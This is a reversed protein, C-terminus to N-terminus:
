YLSGGAKRSKFLAKSNSENVLDVEIGNEIRWASASTLLAGVGFSFIFVVITSISTMLVPNAAKWLLLKAVM